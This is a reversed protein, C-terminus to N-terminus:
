HTRTVKTLGSPHDPDVGAARAALLALQQGRVVMPLASLPEPLGSQCGVVPMDDPVASSSADTVMVASAGRSKALRVADLVDPYTAGSAAYGVMAASSNVAAVPGHLFDGVAYGSAGRSVSEKMKLASEHAVGMTFARGLHVTERRGMHKLARLVASDDAIASAVAAATMREDDAGWPVEGLAAAVHCLALMSATVTKTAPVAQEEGAALCVVAEGARALESDATNTIAVTRAGSGATRRLTEVIEPTRGSQSIAVVLWGSLDTRAEYRTWLSPAALGVPRGTALELVYRAHLAANDSSGRALLLVGSLRAPAVARIAALTAPRRDVLRMLVEPQDAMERQMLTGSM